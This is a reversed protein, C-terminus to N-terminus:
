RRAPRRPEAQPLVRVWRAVSPVDQANVLFLMYYGPPIVNLNTPAKLTIRRGRARGTIRLRVYRQNM